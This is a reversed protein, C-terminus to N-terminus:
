ALNLKILTDRLGLLDVTNSGQKIEERYIAETNEREQTAQLVAALNQPSVAVVGDEDGFIYDGPNIVADGICIPVNIKGSQKKATGKISLGRCFVPFGLTKIAQADRVSGNIILGAVGKTIAQETLIDGWPGAEIFRKADVVLVDGPQIHLLAYHLMLNDGPHIDVTFAPGYVQMSDSLPKIGSDLAGIAGQAEYISASGFQSLQSAIHKNIM